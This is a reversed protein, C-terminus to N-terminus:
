KAVGEVSQTNPIHSHNPIENVALTVTSTGGMQGIVKGSLGLGHGQGMPARGQLNEMSQHMLLRGVKVGDVMITLQVAHPFELKYSETADDM